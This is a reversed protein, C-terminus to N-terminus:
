GCRRHIRGGARANAWGSRRSHRALRTRSARVRGLYLVARVRSGNPGRRDHRPRIRWDDRGARDHNVRAFRQRRRSRQGGSRTPENRRRSLDHGRAFSDNRARGFHTRPGFPPGDRRCRSRGPGSSCKAARGRQRRSRRLSRERGFTKEERGRLCRERRFWERDRGPLDRARGRLHRDRGFWSGGDDFADSEEASPGPRHGLLGGIELGRGSISRSSGSITTGPNVSVSGMSSLGTFPPSASGHREAGVTDKVIFRFPVFM